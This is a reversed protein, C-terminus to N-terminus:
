VNTLYRCMCVLSPDQVHTTDMQQDQVDVPTPEIGEMVDALDNHSEPPPISPTTPVTPAPTEHYSTSGGVRGSSTRYATTVRAQPAIDSRHELPSDSVDIDVQKKRKSM